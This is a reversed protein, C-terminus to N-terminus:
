VPLGASVAESVAFPSMDSATPLVFFDMAKLHESVLVRNDVRQHWVVGPLEGRPRSQATFIHLEARGVWRDQHWQLLRYGGKRTMDNGVFAIRVLGEPPAKDWSRASVSRVPPVI